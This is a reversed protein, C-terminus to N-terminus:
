SSDLKSLTRKQRIICAHGLVEVVLPEDVEVGHDLVSAHELRRAVQADRGGGDALLQADQLALRPQLEKLAITALQAWRWCGLCQRAGQGTPRLEL